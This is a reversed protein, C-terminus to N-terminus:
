FIWVANPDGAADLILIGTIGFSSPDNYVGPLLTEGGLDHIAGYTVTPARGAADIYALGLDTKALQTVGDGAHNVGTFTGPGFGTITATPFSGINGGISTSGTNEIKSGALVGFSAASQLDIPAPSAAMADDLVFMVATAVVFGILMRQPQLGAFAVIASLTRHKCKMKFRQNM